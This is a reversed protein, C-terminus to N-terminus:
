RTAPATPVRVDLIQVHDSLSGLSELVALAAAAKAHVATMRGLQVEAAAPRDGRLTLTAEGSRVTIRLTLLRLAEPLTALARFAERHQVRTGVAPSQGSGVVEPLADPAVTTRELVRGTGDVISIPTRSTDRTWGVGRRETVTVVVTEPLETAVRARLVFPIREVRRAIRATDLFLLPEGERIHAATRVAAPTVRTVGRVDVTGAGLLSSSAILYAIGVVALTIVIGM